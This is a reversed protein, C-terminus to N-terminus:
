ASATGAAAPPLAAAPRLAVVMRTGGDPGTPSEARVAGGMAAVLEAVIALGLGSGKPPASGNRQPASRAVFLRDFVHPLDAPAIGPGDDSVQLQPGGPGASAVLTV